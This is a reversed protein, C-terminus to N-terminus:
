VVSKRDVVMDSTLRGWIQDKLGMQAMKAESTFGMKVGVLKAGRALRHDIAARQIAYADTLPLDGAEGTIQPIARAERAAPDLRAAIAAIDAM